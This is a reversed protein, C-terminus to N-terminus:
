EVKKKNHSGDCLPPTGTQKCMCLWVPGSKEAVFVIPDIGTGQHSGDCFPQSNSRGCACWTYTEGEVLDVQIPSHGARHVPSHSM